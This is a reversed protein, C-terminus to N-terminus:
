RRRRTPALVLGGFALVVVAVVALIGLNSVPLSTGALRTSPKQPGQKATSRVSASSGHPGDVRVKLAPSVSAACVQENPHSGITAGDFRTQFATTANVTRAPFAYNGAGDTVTSDVPTASGAQLLWIRQGGRCPPYGVLKGSITIADGSRLKGPPSRHITLNTQGILPDALAVGAVFVILLPFLSLPAARRV